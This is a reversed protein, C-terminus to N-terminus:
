LYNYIINDTMKEISKINCRITSCVVYDYKFLGKSFTMGKKDVHERICDLCMEITEGSEIFDDVWVYLAKEHPKFGSVREGHSEENEKKVHCVLTNINDYKKQIANHFLTAVIAGSSGMCILVVYKAKILDRSSISIFDQVMKKISFVNSKMNEGFPHTVPYKQINFKNVM